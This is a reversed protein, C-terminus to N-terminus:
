FTVTRPEDTFSSFTATANDLRVVVCNGDGPAYAKRLGPYESLLAESKAPDEDPTADASIRLWTGAKPDYGCIAIRPHAVMEAYCPKSMGTQIYLAGDIKAVTGFPRVQPNGDADVTALYYTPNDKLFKLVEDM